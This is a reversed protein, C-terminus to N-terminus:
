VSGLRLLAEVAEREQADSPGQLATFDFPMPQLSRAMGTSVTRMGGSNYVGTSLFSRGASQAAAGATNYSEARLAAAGVAAWDEDDTADEPDDNMAIDDDDPAESCSASASGDLSMKDAECEMMMADRDDHSFVISDGASSSAVNLRSRDAGRGGTKNIPIGSRYDTPPTSGRAAQGRRRADWRGWGVKEFEVDGDPGSGEGGRGELAGVVLRRAKTPPIGAFGPVSTTLYGMIHRIALPGHNLLIEPLHHKALLTTSIAGTADYSPSRSAQRRGTPDDHLDLDSDIPELRAKQLQAKLGHPPLAPSISNPPTPLPHSRTVTTAPVSRAAVVTLNDRSMNSAQHIDCAAAAMTAM